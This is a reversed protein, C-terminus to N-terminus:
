GCTASFLAGGASQNVVRRHRRPFGGTGGSYQGLRHVVVCLNQHNAFVVGYGDRRNRRPEGAPWLFSEYM